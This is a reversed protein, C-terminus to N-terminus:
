ESARDGEGRDGIQSPIIRGDQLSPAQYETWAPGGRGSHFWLLSAGLLLIAALLIATWPATAWAPPNPDQIRKARQRAIVLYLWWAVFPATLPLVVTLLKRLM